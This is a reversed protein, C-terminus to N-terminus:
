IYYFIGTDDMLCNLGTTIQDTSTITGLNSVAKVFIDYNPAIFRHPQGLITVSVPFFLRTTNMLDFFGIM